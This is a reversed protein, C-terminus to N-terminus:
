LLLLFAEFSSRLVIVTVSVLTYNLAAASQAGDRTQCLPTNWSKDCSSWPVQTGSFSFALYYLAYAQLTNYYSLMLVNVIIVSWGIGKMWPSIKAWVSINGLRFYQGVALELYMCPMGIIFLCVLFPILFAGGGNQYCVTPFRWVNGLDIVFGIISLFYEMFSDWEVRAVEDGGAKANAASVSEAALPAPVTATKTTTENVIMEQQQQQQQQQNHHQTKNMRRTLLRILRTRFPLVRNTATESVIGNSTANTANTNNNNNNNNSSPLLAASEIGGSGGVGGGGGSDRM